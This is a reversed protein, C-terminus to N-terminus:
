VDHEAIRQRGKDTLVLGGLAALRVVTGLVLFTKTPEISREDLPARLAAELDRVDAGPVAARITPLDVYGYGDLELLATFQVRRLM